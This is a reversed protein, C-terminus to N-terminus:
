AKPKHFASFDVVQVTIAGGNPGAHEISALKAHVYPAASKAADMRTPLDKAEDRMVALMYDLPTIGTAEVAAILEKTKKNPTGKKRGAGPRAGGNQGYVSKKEVVAKNTTTAKLINKQNEKSAHGPERPSGDRDNINGAPKSRRPPAKQPKPTPKTAM